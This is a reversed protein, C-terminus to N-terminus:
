KAAFSDSLTSQEFGEPITGSTAYLYLATQFIASLAALVVVVVAIWLVSVVVGAVFAAEGLAGALVLVAVVPLMAVFGLLGFGVQGAINEGWTQKLHSASSRLGEIPGQDDIVIAPVVLFTAVEWAAGIIGLVIRGLWGAREKLTELILGVTTKLIAWPVLGGLRAMARRIASGVTPDGGTLREYAGAVLAGNFFVSVIGLVMASVVAVVILVGSAESGEAGASSDADMSLLRPVWIVALLVVSLLFSLVPLVLLERDKRLVGWSVKAMTWTNSLRRVPWFNDRDRRRADADSLISVDCQSAGKDGGRVM